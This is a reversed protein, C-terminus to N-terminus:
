TSDSKDESISPIIIDGTLRITTGFTTQSPSLQTEDNTANRIGLLVDPLDETWSREANIAHARLADKLTRHFREVKGNCQPHYTTTHRHEIGYDQCLQQFTSGIFQRGNDSVVIEPAGFRSIWEKRLVRCIAESNIDKLPIAETWSTERDIITFLFNKGNIMPLPGVLDIHIVKFKGRDPLTGLKSKTHRYIKNSHCNQCFKCWKRIESKMRPWVYKSTMTLITSNAGSHCFGHLREFETFRYDKPLCIRPIGTSKDVLIGEKTLQPKISRFLM